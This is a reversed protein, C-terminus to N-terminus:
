IYRNEELKGLTGLMTQHLYYSKNLLDQSITKVDQLSNNKKFLESLYILM